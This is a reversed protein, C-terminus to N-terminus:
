RTEVFRNTFLKEVELAKDLLGTRRMFDVSEQWSKGSSIGPKDTKWLEISATLVQRQLPATKDSIEPIARRAVVFAEDPHKVTFALGRQTARVMRRVLDPDSTLLKEGVVLGNSVLDVYNSVEYVDVEIGANRLQLPENVIYVMAADVLNQQVASAQTFGIQKVTVANEKLGSSFALAKWGVFTAGFFGPLGVIKGNLGNLGSIKKSTPIMLGVPYRQYWKMVYTIPLGQARALIVQDGSAVAFEREGQAALIVFDNEYGYEIEVELGEERYFGKEEAVYLPAFQVNPIYSVGFRVKQLKRSKGTWASTPDANWAVWGVALILIFALKGCSKM